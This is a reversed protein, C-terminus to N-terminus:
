LSTDYHNVILTESQSHNDHQWSSTFVTEEEESDSESPAARVDNYWQKTLHDMQTQGDRVEQLFLINNSVLSGITRYTSVQSRPYISTQCNHDYVHICIWPLLQVGPTVKTRSDYINQGNAWKRFLKGKLKYVTKVTKQM